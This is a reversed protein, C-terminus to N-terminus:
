PLKHYFIIQTLRKTLPLNPPIIWGKTNKIRPSTSHAKYITIKIIVRSYFRDLTELGISNRM